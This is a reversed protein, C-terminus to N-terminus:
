IEQPHLTLYSKETSLHLRAGDSDIHVCSGARLTGHIMRLALENEIEQQLVRRLPRAGLFPDFGHELCYAKAAASYRLVIDKGRLREALKKLECELIEQLTERELPAFVVCEDVRNLFEPSFIRKIERLAQVRLQRYEINRARATQFGPVNEGLGRTGANSTMIIITNRFNVTHGLNDQLEGEELVQLLVNFVDPHAKEIEDLLIVSFPRHRVRETLLGGNEFGVYGPPAGMLRSTNYREMYDSMDIRILADASGFLFEALTKALLTKGVGTPGLFLFSGIPRTDSSIGVRARVIARALTAIAERQGRVTACLDREINTFRCLEDGELSHVPIDTMLSVAQAVDEAFISLAERASWEVKLAHLRRRLQVVDTHLSRARAWDELAIARETETTLNAVKISFSRLVQTDARQQVRKMAGVEDMLDIAKDPFFREPIYRRSLEVIKELADSQYIVQHHREYHSKIKRLITCTEEFSPERVLVSRFRRTLAADKEFYRRYEALTTAGICQIQGRALAPKLMNAADLSGQTGGAGILTHLEDIFLIVKETEEVEKIIRKLREEFQGRYKTGAIVAALDLSVVRTHLLIHPVEERVIAYALGEVISTKGVGPEGILVPNNKGRRCLIQIVRTIEKDRGIVPNLAGARARETLDTGYEDLVSAVKRELRTRTTDSHPSSIISANRLDDLSLGERILSQFLPNQEERAFAIVLHETGIYACRLSRAEMAAIDLLHKVRGSVPLDQPSAVDGENTLVHQELILRVTAVDEILKEILKYGRGVKHQILALLIHEPQLLSARAERAVTQGLELLVKRANASLDQLM